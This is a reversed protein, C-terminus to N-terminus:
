EVEFPVGRHARSIVTTPESPFTVFRGYNLSLSLAPQTGRKKGTESCLFPSQWTKQSQVHFAFPKRSVNCEAIFGQCTAYIWFWLTSIAPHRSMQVQSFHFHTQSDGRIFGKIMYIILKTNDVNHNPEIYNKHVFKTYM